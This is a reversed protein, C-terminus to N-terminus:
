TQTPSRSITDCQDHRGPSWVRRTSLMVTKRPSRLTEGDLTKREGIDVDRLGDRNDSSSSCRGM